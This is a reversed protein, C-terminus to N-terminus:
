FELKKPVNMSLGLKVTQDKSVSVIQNFKVAEEFTNIFKIHFGDVGKVLHVLVPEDDDTSITININKRVIDQSM